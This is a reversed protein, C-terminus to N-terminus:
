DGLGLIWNSVLFAGSGSRIRCPYALWWWSEPSDRLQLGRQACRDRLEGVPLLPEFFRGDADRYLSLIREFAKAETVPSHEARCLRNVASPVEAASDALGLQIFHPAARAEVGSRVAGGDPRQVLGRAVTDSFYIVGDPTILSRLLRVHDDVALEVLRHYFEDSREWTQIAVGFRNEVAQAAYTFPYRPIESLLLSSVVLDSRPLDTPERAELGDLIRGLRQFSDAASSSSEVARAVSEILGSAFSTVDVVRLEVRSRLHRPVQGLGSLMSHGDLDVLVLRDFRSALEALPIEIGVGAGLVTAVERGGALDAARLIRERSTELHSRWYLRTEPATGRFTEGSAGFFDEIGQGSLPALLAPFVLPMLVAIAAAVAFRPRVGQSVVSRPLRPPSAGSAGPSAPGHEALGNFTLRM